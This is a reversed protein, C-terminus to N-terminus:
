IGERYEFVINHMQALIQKKKNPSKALDDGCIKQSSSQEQIFSEIINQFEYRTLTKRSKMLTNTIHLIADGTLKEEKNIIDSKTIIKAIVDKIQRNESNALTKILYHYGDMFEEYKNKRYTNIECDEDSAYSSRLISVFEEIEINQDNALKHPLVRLLDRMCFVADWTVGDGTNYKGNISKQREFYYFASEFKELRQSKSSIFNEAQNRDLGVRELLYLRKYKKYAKDFLRTTSSDYFNKINEKTGSDIANAIQAFTQVIYRAKQKQEKITTSWREVDDYRYESHFLGFQRISGYDIISGDMLINDGDWDLWCFIYEHEFRATIDAFSEAVKEILQQYKSKSSNEPKWSKNERLRKIYLDMSAKLANMNEQKNHLFIHSPRILSEAVRVNISLDNPFEIVALTRETRLGTNFLVESMIAGSIGDALDCYGCGYSISPDGTEFYKQNTTTAPSLRTGGTGCSSIDWKCGNDEYQGNWISRGDGSHLGQNDEHQLQLYRTAMYTNSKIENENFKTKNIIDYENIIQLAFTETIKQELQKNLKHEHRKGILGMDKALKFNFYIVKGDRRVRAKYPVFSNPVAKKMDHNGDIQDFQKYINTRSM